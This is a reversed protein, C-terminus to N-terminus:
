IIHARKCINGFAECCEEFFEEDEELYEILMEDDASDPYYSFWYDFENEDGITDVVYDNMSQLIIMKTILMDKTM